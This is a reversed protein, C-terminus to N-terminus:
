STIIAGRAAVGGEIRAEAEHGRPGQAHRALIRHGVLHERNGLQRRAREAAAPAKDAVGRGERQGRASPGATPRMRELLARTIV